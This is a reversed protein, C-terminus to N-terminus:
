SAQTADYVLRLEGVDAIAQAMALLEACHRDEDVYIPAGLTRELVVTYHGRGRGSGAKPPRASIVVARLHFLPFVAERGWGLISERVEVIGTGRDILIERQLTLLAVGLLVLACSAAALLSHDGALAWFAALAGAGAIIAGVSRTPRTQRLCIRESSQESV